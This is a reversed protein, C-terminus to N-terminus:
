TTRKRRAVGLLGILGSSFLWVAAPVPVPSGAPLLREPMSAGVGTSLSSITGSVGDQINHLAVVYQIDPDYKSVEFGLWGQASGSWRGPAYDASGDFTVEGKGYNGFIQDSVTDTAILNTIELANIIVGAAFGLDAVFDILTPTADNDTDYTEQEYPTYYWASWGEIPVTTHVRVAFAESTAQEFIALDDGTDDALGSGLGWTLQIIERLNTTPPFSPDQGLTAGTGPAGKVPTIASYGPQFTPRQFYTGLSNGATWDSSTYSPLGTGHDTVYGGGTITATTTANDTDFGIGAITFSAAGAPGSFGLTLLAACITRAFRTNM